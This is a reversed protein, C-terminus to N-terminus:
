IMSTSQLDSSIWCWAWVFGTRILKIDKYEFWAPYAKGWSRSYKSFARKIRVVLWHLDVQFKIAMEDAAEYKIKRGLDALLAVNQTKWVAQFVAQPIIDRWPIFQSPNIFGQFWLSFSSNTLFSNFTTFLKGHKKRERNM